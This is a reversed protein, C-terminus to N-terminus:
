AIRRKIQAIREERTQATVRPSTAAAAQGNTLTRAGNASAGSTTRPPAGNPAPERSSPQLKALREARAKARLEVAKMVQSDSIRAIDVGDAAALALEEKAVRLIDAPEYVANAYPYAAEDRSHAIFAGEIQQTNQQSGRQREEERERKEAAIAERLERLEAATSNEKSGEGAYYAALQEGTMGRRHAYAMFKEPDRLAQKFEDLEARDKAIETREAKIRNAEATLSARAEREQKVVRAERKALAAFQPAFKQPPPEEKPAESAAEEGETPTEVEGEPAADIVPEETPAPEEIQVDSAAELKALVEAARSM